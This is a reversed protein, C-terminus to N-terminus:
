PVFLPTRMVTWRDDVKKVPYAFQWVAPTEAPSGGCCPGMVFTTGNEALFEIYFLYEDPSSQQVETIAAVPLCLMSGCATQWWAELDAGPPGYPTAEYSGGFLAGGEAYQGDALLSFFAVLTERAQEQDSAEPPMVTWTPLLPPMRTPNPTPEVSPLPPPAPTFGLRIVQVSHDPNSILQYVQGDPGISLTHNFMQPIFDPLLRAIGLQTGDAAYYYVYQDLNGAGENDPIWQNVAAAFSGDPNFGLFSETDVYLPPAFDIATDDIVLSLRDGDPHLQARYTHDNFALAEIPEAVVQGASDLLRHLGNVGSTLVSGDEGIWLNFIGNSVLSGDQTMLAEPIPASSELNGELDLQHVQAPQSSIGLLWIADDTVVMDYLGLVKDELPITQLLEGQLNFQLLRGPYLATDAIWYSSDPGVAFSGAGWGLWDPRPDGERGSFPQENPITLVIENKTPLRLSAASTETPPPPEETPIISTEQVAPSSPAVVQATEPLLACGTLGFAVILLIFLCYHRSKRTNM